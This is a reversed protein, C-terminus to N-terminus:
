YDEKDLYKIWGLNDWWKLEDSYPFKESPLSNLLYVDIDRDLGFAFAMEAFTGAGIYGDIGKKEFNLVFIADANSIANYHDKFEKKYSDLFNDKKIKAPCKLVKFDKNELKEKWERLEEEFTVSGCIVAKKM